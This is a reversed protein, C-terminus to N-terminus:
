ARNVRGAGSPYDGYSRRLVTLPRQVGDYIGEVLGPGLEVGLPEGMAFIGIHAVHSFEGVVVYSGVCM